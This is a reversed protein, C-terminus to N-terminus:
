SEEGALLVQGMLRGIGGQGVHDRRPGFRQHDDAGHGAALPRLRSLWRLPLAAPAWIRRPVRPRDPRETGPDGDGEQMATILQNARPVTLQYALIDQREQSFAVPTQGVALGTAPGVSLIVLLVIGNRM